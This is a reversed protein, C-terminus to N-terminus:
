KRRTQPHLYAKLTERDAHWLEDRKKDLHDPNSLRRAAAQICESYLGLLQAAAIDQLNGFKHAATKLYAAAKCVLM